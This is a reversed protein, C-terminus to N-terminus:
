KVRRKQAIVAGTITVDVRSVDRGALHAVRDRVEEQIRAVRALVTEGARIADTDELDPVPLPTSVRVAMGRSGESVEVSISGREVGVVSASSEQAIKELVRPQVVIRGAYSDLEREPAAAAVQSLGGGIRGAGATSM